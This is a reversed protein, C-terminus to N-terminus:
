KGKMLSMSALKNLLTSITSATAIGLKEAVNKKIKYEIAFMTKNDLQQLVFDDSTQISDVLGLEIAQQGYWHEGTAVKDIDLEPRYQQVFQKFLDHTQELDQKFKARGQDTNEGMFTLTRKYEGATHQEIDIHNKKLLKNINPMEAVVGISGIVAFPASIIHDAVCAMMYGGSAAVKDVAATTKINAQRLRAIQSAALGYGHVLGGPSELKILVEDMKADAVSIIASIEERLAEVESAHMDGNFDLIFLRGKPEEQKDSKKNKKQEKDFAKCQEKTLLSRKLELLQETLEETLNELTLQGKAASKNKSALALVMVLTFVIAIVLTLAKALFLGYEYLFEM